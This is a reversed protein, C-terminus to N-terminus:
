QTENVNLCLHQFNGFCMKLSNTHAHPYSLKQPLHVACPVEHPQHGTLITEVGDVELHRMSTAHRLSVIQTTQARLQAPLVQLHVQVLQGHHLLSLQLHLSTEFPIISFIWRPVEANCNGMTMMRSLYKTKDYICYLIIHLFM